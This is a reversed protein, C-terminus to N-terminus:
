EHEAVEEAFRFKVAIRKGQYVHIREVLKDIIEATLDSVCNLDRVSERSQSLKNKARVRSYNDELLLKERETLAAIKSEYGSKMQKYETDTIDGLILSEYLGRCFHQAKDLEARVATLEDNDSACPVYDFNHKQLLRLLKEKLVKENISVLVCGSKDRVSRTPCRFNHQIESTRSRFMTYGCHGCFIKQLFPNESEPTTRNLKQKPEKWQAQVKAFLERSIIPEHTNQTITWESEPLPKRGGGDKQSKGQVMDGCYIRNKLLSYIYNKNWSGRAENETAAGISYLYRKPPLIANDNLWNLIKSVGQKEAAMEFMKRVIEASYEDLILKHCDDPSILYGYPPSKGVYYGNRINLQYTAQIKRSVDLAYAENVMNKLSLMIGGSTGDNSDYNDTVAVFRIHNTPFFKEVYYGTDIANRGLRSLDKVVCCNIKGSEIDDLMQRFAPREFTQGSAGNDIYVDCLEMDSHEAIYTNIIVQQTELSDGKKGNDAVSLRIYAAVNYTKRKPQVEINELNKRSKRAM